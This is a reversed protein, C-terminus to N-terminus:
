AGVKPNGALAEMQDRLVLSALGRAEHAERAKLYWQTPVDDCEPNSVSGAAGWTHEEYSNLHWCAREM